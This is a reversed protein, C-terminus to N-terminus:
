GHIGVTRNIYVAEDSASLMNIIKGLALSLKAKKSLM